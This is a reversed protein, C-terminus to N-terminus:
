TPPPCYRCGRSRSGAASTCPRRRRKRGLLPGPGIPIQQSLQSALSEAVAVAMELYIPYNGPQCTWALTVTRGDASVTVQVDSVESVTHSARDAM